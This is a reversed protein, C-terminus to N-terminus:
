LADKHRIMLRLAPRYAAIPPGPPNPVTEIDPPTLRLFRALRELIAWSRHVRWARPLRCLGSVKRM